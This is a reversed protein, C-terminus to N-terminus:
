QAAFAKRFKRLAANWSPRFFPRPKAGAVQEVPHRLGGALVQAKRPTIPRHSPGFVGTGFETMMWRFHSTGIEIFDRGGSIHLSAALERDNGLRRQMDHYASEGTVQIAKYADGHFTDLAEDLSGLFETDDFEVGISRHISGRRRAM